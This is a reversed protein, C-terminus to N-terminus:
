EGKVVEAPNRNAARWVMTFISVVIVLFVALFIAVFLWADM